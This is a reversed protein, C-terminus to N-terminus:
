PRCRALCTWDAKAWTRIASCRPPTRSTCRGSSRGWEHIEAPVDFGLYISNGVDYYVGVNPGDAACALEALERAPLPSELAVIVGLEKAVPAVANLVAVLAAKKQPTDPHSRFYTCLLMVGAGIAHTFRLSRLVLDQARAAGTPDVLSGDENFAGLAVSPLTVGLRRAHALLRAVRVDAWTLYECDAQGIMPEVGALGLRAAYDLLAEGSLRATVQTLGTKRPNMEAGPPRAIATATNGTLSEGEAARGFKKRTKAMVLDCIELAQDIDKAKHSYNIFAVHWHVFFLGYRLCQSFFYRHAPHNFDETHPAFSFRPTSDFPDGYARPGEMRHSRCIDNLGDILRRGMKQLHAPVNKEKFERLTAIAAAISVAEVSFTGATPTGPMADM